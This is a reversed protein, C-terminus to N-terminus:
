LAIFNLNEDFYEVQTVGYPPIICEKMAKEVPTKIEFYGSQGVFVIKSSSLVNYIKIKFYAKM